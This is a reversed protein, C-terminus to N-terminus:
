KNVGFNNWAWNGYQWWPKIVFEVHSDCMLYNGGGIGDHYGKGGGGVSSYIVSASAGHGLYGYWGWYEAFCVTGSANPTQFMKLSGGKWSIGNCTADDNWNRGQNIAYSVKSRQEARAENDCPCTYATTYKPDGGRDWNVNMYSAVTYYWSLDYGGGAKHKIPYQENYDQAYMAVGTSLQKLNNACLSRKAVDRAKGLAPLLIASLIAIIAMVVLLEILTMNNPRQEM